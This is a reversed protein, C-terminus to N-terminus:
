CSNSFGDWRTTMSCVSAPTSGTGSSSSIPKSSMGSMTKWTSSLIVKSLYRVNSIATTMQWIVLDGPGASFTKGVADFQMEGTRCLIHCHYNEKYTDPYKGDGLTNYILFDEMDM